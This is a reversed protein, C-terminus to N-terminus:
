FLSLQALPNPEPRMVLLEAPYNAVFRLSRDPPADLWTEYQDEPLICVMRKDQQDHSLKRTYHMLSFMPHSAADMTLMTFSEVVVSDFTHTAWLGAIGLPAGDARDFRTPVHVNTRWDPEYLYEVPVVCHQGRSWPGRFTHLQHATEIRANYTHAGDKVSTANPKLLGFHGNVLEIDQSRKDRRRLFPAVMTPNTDGGGPPPEWEFPVQIGMRSLRAKEKMAQYHSCM